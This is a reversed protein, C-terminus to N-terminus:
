CDEHHRVAGPRDGPEVSRAYELRAASIPLEAGRVPEITSEFVPAAGAASGSLLAVREPPAAVQAEFLQRVIGFAFESELESGRASLVRLGREAALTRAYELLRTKGIGADGEIVLFRGHGHVAEDLVETIVAIEHERDLIPLQPAVGHTQARGRSPVVRGDLQGSTGTPRRQDRSRAPSLARRASRGSHGVGVKM